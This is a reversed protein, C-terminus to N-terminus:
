LTEALQQLGMATNSRGRSDEIKAIDGLFNKINARAKPDDLNKQLNPIVLEEDPEIEDVDRVNNNALVIVPYYFGNGYKKRAIKNLADGKVVIYTEADDLILAGQYQDYVKKFADESSPTEKPTSKCGFVLALSLVLATCLLIKKM